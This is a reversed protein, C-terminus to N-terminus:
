KIIENHLDILINDDIVTKFVISIKTRTIEINLIDLNHKEIISMIKKYVDNNPM